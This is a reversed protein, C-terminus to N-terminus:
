PACFDGGQAGVAPIALPTKAGDISLLYAVLKDIDGNQVLFNANKTLSKWHAGFTATLMEELTRANGAHLFPAGVSLGLLSPPNYGKGDMANGQAATIMDQCLEAVGVGPAAVNFTGVPRLICELSDNAANGFRMVQNPPTTAPLLAMPFGMGVLGAGSWAKMFLAANTAGKPTYFMKSITWKPGGHCGQCVGGQMADKFLTEGAAVMAPDLGTPARPPRITQVYLAIDNWDKIVSTNTTVDTASGNLGAAGAPPFLVASTLDIRDAIKPDM